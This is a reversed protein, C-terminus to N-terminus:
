KGAIRIRPDVLGYVIDVVMNAFVLFTGYFVTLGLIMTYDYTQINTVYFKGMGPIAFISEVIFTGTLTSAVMPGLITIIPMIANRIQHMTVVRMKSIGKSRATKIYDQQTVELMSSRMMRSISALSYFGLATVPLITYELGKYQAVPLLGWKIGFFYQLVSGMIFDPVSVGVIAIVVCVVDLKKGRNIASIIGLILGLSVFTCLARLGLDASYPFASKIIENVTVNAYKMSYGLDGRLLNGLYTFYQEIIPRDLGYYKAMNAKIEPTMKKNSMPDGPLLRVLIFVQRKYM